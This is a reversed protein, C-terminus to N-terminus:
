LDHTESIIISLNNDTEIVINHLGQPILYTDFKAIPEGGIKGYGGICAIHKFNNETSITMKDTINYQHFKFYECETTNPDLDDFYKISEIANDVHLERFTGDAQKRNYDYFRYTINSNQQIEAILIGKGIAHVLGTPIFYVEGAKVNVYNLLDEISNNDIAERIESETHNSKLGYVLQADDDAEMIYWAETKNPHVQISLKDGADIIKVLLHFESENKNLYDSLKMGRYTGNEIVNVDNERVTLLWSEATGSEKGLRNGGWIAKKYVPTLKLPYIM